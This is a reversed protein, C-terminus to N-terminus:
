VDAMMYVGMDGATSAYVEHAANAILVVDPVMVNSFIMNSIVFQACVFGVVVDAMRLRDPGRTTVDHVKVLVYAAMTSGPLFHLLTAIAYGFIICLVGACVAVGMRSIAAHLPSIVTVGVSCYVAIAVVGYGLIVPMAIRLMLASAAIIAAGAGTGGGGVTTYTCLSEAPMSCMMM